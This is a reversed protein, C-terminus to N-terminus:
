REEGKKSNLGAYSVGKSAITGLILMGAYWILLDDALKNDLEREVIIWTTIFAAVNNWLKFHSMQGNPDRFLDALKM